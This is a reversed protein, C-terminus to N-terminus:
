AQKTRSHVAFIRVLVLLSVAQVYGISNVGLLPLAYNWLLMVFLAFMLLTGADILLATVLKTMSDSM